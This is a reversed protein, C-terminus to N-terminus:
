LHGLHWTDFAQQAEPPMQTRQMTWDVPDGEAVVQWGEATKRLMVATAASWGGQNDKEGIDVFAWDGALTADLYDPRLDTAARALTEVQTKDESSGPSQDASATHQTVTGSAKAVLWWGMTATHSDEGSGVVEVVQVTYAQDDEDAVSLSVRAGTTAMTRLWLEVEPVWRVREIADDPSSVPGTPASPEEPEVRDAPDIQVMPEDVIAPRVEAPRRHPMVWLGYWSIVGIIIMTVGFALAFWGWRPTRDRLDRIKPYLEGSAGMPREAVALSADRGCKPCFAQGEYLEKGCYGCFGVHTSATEVIDPEPQPRRRTPDHREVEGQSPARGCKYCFAQGERM